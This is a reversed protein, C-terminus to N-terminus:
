VGHAKPVRWSQLVAPSSKPLLTAQLDQGAEGHEARQAVEDKQCDYVWEVHEGCSVHHGRIMFWNLNCLDPRQCLIGPKGCFDKWCKPPAQFDVVRGSRLKMKWSPLSFCIVVNEGFNRGRRKDADMERTKEV